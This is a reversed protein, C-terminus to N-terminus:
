CRGSTRTASSSVASRTRTSRRSSTRRFASVRAAPGLGLGDALMSMTDRHPRRKRGNENGSIADVSIGSREALMQQTLGAALRLRRLLQGFSGPGGSESSM